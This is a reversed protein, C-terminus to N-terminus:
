EGDKNIYDKLKLLVKTRLGFKRKGDDSMMEAYTKESGSPQFLSDWGFGGDGRPNVIEGEQSEEFFMTNEGDSYGLTIRGIASKDESNEVLKYVGEPGLAKLFWKVFPGPLGGLSKIELSVDDCFFIGKVSESAEKLKRELIKKTDLEQIECVDIDIQEVEPILRKATEFKGVKRNKYNEYIQQPNLSENM